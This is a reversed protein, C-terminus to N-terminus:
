IKIPGQRIVVPREELLSIITSPIGGSVPGGDIVAAVRGDLQAIADAASLAAPQGSLNASTTAVVGGAQRILDRCLDHDPIRVAIGSNPSINSPLNRNKPIILTLAGPWHQEALEWALRPIEIAVQDLDSIDALLIPIGKAAERVKAGYIRKIGEENLAGTGVGYVTDTPFVVTQGAKLLAAGQTIASPDSGDLKRTTQDMSFNPRYKLGVAM